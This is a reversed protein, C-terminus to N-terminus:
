EVASVGTDLKDVAATESDLKRCRHISRALLALLAVLAWNQNRILIVNWVFSHATEQSITGANVLRQMMWAGPAFFVACCAAAGLAIRRLAPEYRYTSAAWALPLCLIAADYFRHYVALLTLVAVASALLLDRRASLSRGRLYVWLGALAAIVFGILGSSRTGTLATILPRLELLQASFPGGPDHEIGATAVERTTATWSALWPVRNITLWAVGVIAAVVCIVLAVLAARTHRRLFYYLIFPAALQPKFLTALALLVGGRVEHDREIGDIAMVLFAVCPIALQALAIGTHYPSLALVGGLLWVGQEDRMSAGALRFIPKLHWTFLVTCVVLFAFRAAPWSLLAFPALVVFTSPPYLAGGEIRRGHEDTERGSSFLVHSLAACDYPNQGLLWTRAAAYPPALDDGSHTTRMPGRLIFVISAVTLFGWALVRRTTNNM